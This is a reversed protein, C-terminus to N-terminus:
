IFLVNRSQFRLETKALITNLGTCTRASCNLPKRTGSCAFQRRIVSSATAWPIDESLAMIFRPISETGPVLSINDRVWIPTGDKRRYQKEIQFQNRKGEVLERALAECGEVYDEHTFDLFSLAQCEKETYGLMKQYTPNVILLRGTLDALAVGIASNEFVSRWREETNRLAQETELRKATDEAPSHRQPKRRSSGARQM